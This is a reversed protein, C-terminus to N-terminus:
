VIYTNEIETLFYGEIKEFRQNNNEVFAQNKLLLIGHKHVIFTHRQSYLLIYDSPFAISKQTPM